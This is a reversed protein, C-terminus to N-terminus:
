DGARKEALLSFLGGCRRRCRRFLLRFTGGSLGLLGICRRQFGLEFGCKRVRRHGAAPAEDLFALERRLFRVFIGNDSHVLQKTVPPQNAGTNLVAALVDGRRNGHPLRWVEPAETLRPRADSASVVETMVKWM